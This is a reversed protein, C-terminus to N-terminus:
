TFTPAALQVMQGYPATVDAAPATLDFTGVGPANGIATAIQELYITGGTAYDELQADWGYGGPTTTYNLAAVVATAAAQAQALTYGPAPTLGHITVATALAAQAVAAYSGIVPAAANIAAQVNAIDPALPIPNARGDLAFMVVVTGPGNQAPYVWVRTVGTVSKAWAVFDANAGGQPPNSLRAGLRVQLQADTEAAVGGSLGPAVVVGNANIGAVGILLTVPANAPLNGGSGAPSVVVPASVTSGTWVGAATTTLTYTGTSDQMQVGLPLPTGSTGQFSVTGSAAYAPERKLGVGGAYVDLYPAELLTPLLCRNPFNALYAYQGAALKALVLTFVPIVGVPLTVDAGPLASFDAAIQQVLDAFAPVPFTPVPTSM